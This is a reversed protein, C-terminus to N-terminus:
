LLSGQRNETMKIIFLTGGFHSFYDCVGIKLFKDWKGLIKFILFFFYKSKKRDNRHNFFIISVFAM